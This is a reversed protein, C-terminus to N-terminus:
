KYYNGWMNKFAHRDNQTLSIGPIFSFVHKGNQAVHKFYWGEFYNKKKLNGQFIEPRFLKM